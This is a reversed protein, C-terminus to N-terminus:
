NLLSPYSPSSMGFMMQQSFSSDGVGFTVGDAMYHGTAANDYYFGVLDGSYAADDIYGLGMTGSGDGKLNMAIVPQDLQQNALEFFTQSPDPTISNTGSWQLGLVGDYPQQEGPGVQDAAGVDMSDVTVGAISVSDIAVPGSAFTNQDYVAGYHANFTEGDALTTPTYVARNQSNPANPGYVWLDSSGTDILLEFENGGISVPATWQIMPYEADWTPDLQTPDAESLGTSRRSLKTSRLQLLSRSKKPTTPPPHTPLALTYPLLTSSLFLLSSLSPM